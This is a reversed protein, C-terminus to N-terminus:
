DDDKESSNFKSDIRKVEKNFFHKITPMMPIVVLYTIALAIIFVALIFRM